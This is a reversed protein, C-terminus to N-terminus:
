GRLTINQLRVQGSAILRDDGDRRIEVNWLQQTKGRIIPEAVLNVRGESIAAHFDTGNHVGVPVLGPELGLSAGLSAMSEIAACWVGGHVIGFPQHHDPTIDIWGTVREPEALDIKLGIAAIFAAGGELSSYKSIREEAM